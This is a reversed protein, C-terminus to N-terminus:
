RLAARCSAKPARLLRELVPRALQNAHAPVGEGEGRFNRTKMFIASNQARIRRRTPSVPLIKKVFSNPPIRYPQSNNYLPLDAFFRALVSLVVPCFRRLENRPHPYRRITTRGNEPLRCFERLGGSLNLHIRHPASPRPDRLLTILLDDTAPQRFSSGWELLVPKLPAGPTALDDAKRLPHLRLTAIGHFQKRAQPLM